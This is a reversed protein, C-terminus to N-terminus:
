LFTDEMNWLIWHRPNIKYDYIPKSYTATIYITNSNNGYMSLTKKALDTTGGNHSEDIFRVNFKISKLWEICKNDKIKGSLFQKSCVVINKDKIVPTKNLGNLNIINFDELQLCNLVELYQEITENPSTTIILYNHYKHLDNKSDEIILGGIIYSKGSRQIHGWLVDKVSNKFFELTKIITMEQHLKLILPQKDSDILKKFEIYQYCKKFNYFAEKLDTWDILITTKKDIIKKLKSNTKEIKGTMKVFKNKDKVCIGLVMEYIDEFPKFNTVIEDIDMDGINIKDMNKSTTLLLKNDNLGTLDSSDGKDKLNILKNDDNYFIEKFSKIKSFTELNFNGNCIDFKQIVTILKLKGFLRLLSEQKDKGKWSENLWDIIDDDYEQLFDYLEKFTKM